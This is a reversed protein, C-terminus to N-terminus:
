ILTNFTVGRPFIHFEPGGVADKRLEFEEPGLNRWLGDVFLDFDGQLHVSVEFVDNKKDYVSAKGQSSFKLFYTPEGPRTEVSVKVGPNLAHIGTDKNLTAIGLLQLYRGLIFVSGRQATLESRKMRLHDFRHGRRRPGTPNRSFSGKEKFARLKELMEESLDSPKEDPNPTLNNADSM